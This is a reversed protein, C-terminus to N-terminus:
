GVFHSSDEKETGGPSRFHLSHESNGEILKNNSKRERDKCAETMTRIYLM